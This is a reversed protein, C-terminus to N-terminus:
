IAEYLSLRSGSLFEVRGNTPKKSNKTVNNRHRCNPLDM